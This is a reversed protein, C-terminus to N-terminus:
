LGPILKPITKIIWEVDGGLCVIVLFLLVIIFILLKIQWKLINEVNERHHVEGIYGDSIESETKELATLTKSLETLVETNKTIVQFMLTNMSLGNNDNNKDKTNSM